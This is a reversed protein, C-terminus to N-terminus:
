PVFPRESAAAKGHRSIVELYVAFREHHITYLPRLTVETSEGKVKGSAQFHFPGDPVAQLCSAPNEPNDALLVPVREYATTHEGDAKGNVRLGLWKDGTDSPPMAATGLTAALLVPGYFFSWVQPDDMARRSWAQMPLTLEFSDGNQWTRAIEVYSGAPTEVRQRKGDLSLENDGTAWAPIRLQLKASSPQKTEVTFEISEDFPSETTQRLTIGTERWDLVSPIYLNVWLTDDRHFYIGEGFRTPNELGTGNCCFTGEAPLYSRFDGPRLSTL